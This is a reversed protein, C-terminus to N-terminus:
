LTHTLFVQLSNNSRLQKYVTLAEKRSSFVSFVSPGSGSMLVAESGFALMAQKVRKVEPYIGITIQELSNFLAQRLLSFDKKKLISTLIKVNYRPFTLAENRNRSTNKKDWAAYILPTSVSLYPVALCHWFKHSKLALVEKIVQGRKSGIAFRCDYIFFPVDSGLTKAYEALVKKALNLGWLKNLGLLVAAANSSGGGMGSGVPIRKIIRINVGQKFKCADQLLKASKYALNSSDKPVFSSNCALKIKEDSRSSLIITDHLSIREFLTSIDHYADKRLAKVELFLNLKAYSHITVRRKPPFM